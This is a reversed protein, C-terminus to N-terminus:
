LPPSLPESPTKGLAVPHTKLLLVQADRGVGLWALALSALLGM